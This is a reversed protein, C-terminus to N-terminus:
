LLVEWLSEFHRGPRCKKQTHLSPQELAWSAQHPFRHGSGLGSTGCRARLLPLNCPCPAFEEQMQGQSKNLKISSGQEMQGPSLPSHTSNWGVPAPGSLHCARPTEFSRPCQFGRLCLWYQMQLLFHPQNVRVM